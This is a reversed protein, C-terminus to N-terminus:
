KKWEFVVYERGGLCIEGDRERHEGNSLICKKEREGEGLICSASASASERSANGIFSIVRDGYIRSFAIIRESDAVEHWVTAGCALTDSERKLKNLIKYIEQRRIAAESNKNERDSVEYEGMFFRNAFFNIRAECALENGCYVMPIGDILYNIVQIQEMGDHGAVTETRGKWDTATDHNELDRLLRGGQPLEGATQIHYDRLTYAPEGECFIKRLLMHWTFCYSADFASKMRSYLSGENILVADEKISRIRRRAECWFDEPIADGVDLRFGDADVSAIYYVMNCYLYERLGECRFDLAPFNWRTYRFTGDANQKVFHPYKKIIPANPGIHAYVLDLILKMDLKHAREALEGLDEMTGYEEDVGFYDNMRYMNKPNNTGSALQRASWNSQDTSGDEEFVPCLYIINFGLAKIFELEKTVARITGEKSFTRPNVQYVANRELWLPPRIAINKM